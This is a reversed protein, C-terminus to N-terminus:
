KVKSFASKFCIVAVLLGICVPVVGAATLSAGQTTGPDSKLLIGLLQVIGVMTYLAALVGVVLPGIKM